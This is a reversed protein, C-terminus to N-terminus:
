KGYGRLHKGAGGQKLCECSLGCCPTHVRSCIPPCGGAGRKTCAAAMSPPSHVSHESQLPRAEGPKPDCRSHPLPGLCQRAAAAIVHQNVLHQTDQQRRLYLAVNM